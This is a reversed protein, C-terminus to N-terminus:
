LSFSRYPLQQIGDISSREVINSHDETPIRFFESSLVDLKKPVPHPQSSFPTIQFHHLKEQFEAFIRIATRCDSRGKQGCQQSLLTLYYIKQAV